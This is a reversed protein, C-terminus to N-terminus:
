GRSGSILPFFFRNGETRGLRMRNHSLEGRAEVESAPGGEM